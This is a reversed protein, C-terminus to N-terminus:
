PKGLTYYALSSYYVPDPGVRTKADEVSEIIPQKGICLSKLVALFAQDTHQLCVNGDWSVYIAAGEVCFVQALDTKSLGDCGMMLIIGDRFGDPNYQQIFEPSVVFYYASGLSPRARHIMDTLQLLPYSNTQYKEGTFIWTRNNINTSHVRWIYIEQSKPINKLFEVTVQEGSLYKVYYGSKTLVRISQTKFESEDSITDIIIASKQSSANHYILATISLFFVLVLISRRLISLSYDTKTKVITDGLVLYM